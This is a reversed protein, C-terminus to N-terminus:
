ALLTQYATELTDTHKQWNYITLARHRALQSMRAREDPSNLLEVAARTMADIDGCPVCVGAADLMVPAEGVDSAVAPLGMALYEALKLPSKSRTVPNDEFPAIALDALALYDPVKGGDIYDTIIVSDSIGLESAQNRILPLKRGGGILILKAEPFSSKLRKLVLLTQEAYNAVELQGHYVLTPFSLGLSSYLAEDRPRPQFLDIDAGVPADWIREPSAGWKLAHEKLYASAAATGDAIKPLLRDWRKALWGAWRSGTLEHAIGEEWDDYDYFLPAKWRRSLRWAPLSADPYSKWLHIIDPRPVLDSLRNIVQHIRTAGRPLPLVPVGEIMGTAVSPMERRRDPHVMDTVYVEHGRRALEQAQCIVRRACSVSSLDFRQIILIKM